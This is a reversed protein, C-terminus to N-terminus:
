EDDDDDDDADDDADDDGDDDADDDADDDDAVGGDGEDDDYNNDRNDGDMVNAFVTTTVSISVLPSKCTFHLGFCGCYFDSYCFPSDGNCCCCTSSSLRTVTAM